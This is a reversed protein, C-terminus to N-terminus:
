YLIVGAELSNFSITLTPLMVVPIQSEANGMMFKNQM